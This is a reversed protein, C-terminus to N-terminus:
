DRGLVLGSTGLHSLTEVALRGWVGRSEVQSMNTQQNTQESCTASDGALLMLCIVPDWGWLEQNLLNWPHPQLIQM